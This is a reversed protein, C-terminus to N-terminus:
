SSEHTAEWIDLLLDVDRANSPDAATSGVVDFSMEGASLSSLLDAAGCGRAARIGHLMEAPYNVTPMAVAPGPKADLPEFGDGLRVRIVTDCKASTTFL